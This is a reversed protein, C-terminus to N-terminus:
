TAYNPLGGGVPGKFIKVVRALCIFYDLYTFIFYSFIHSHWIGIINVRVSREIISVGELM